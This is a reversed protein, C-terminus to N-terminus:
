EGDFPDADTDGLDYRPDFYIDYMELMKESPLYGDDFELCDTETKLTNPLSM